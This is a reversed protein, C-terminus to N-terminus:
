GDPQPEDALLAKNFFEVLRRAYEKPRAAAGGAHRAEPIEWLSKPEGAATYLQQVFRAGDRRGTAILYLPRPCIHVIAALVGPPQAVGTLLSQCAYVCWWYPYMVIKSFSFGDVFSHDQLGAASPNEAVIARLTGTEAAVRITIQAGLSIGLAGIRRPDVDPRSGLYDLAGLLDRTELWGWTCLNGESRGHARLDYLLVGYGHKKLINALPLLSTRNSSFGHTLIIWAGNRTPSLWGSLKLGDMSHFSVAELPFELQAAISESIPFRLAHTTRYAEFIAAGLYLSFTLGLLNILPNSTRMEAISQFFLTSILLVLFLLISWYRLGRRRPKLTETQLRMNKYTM